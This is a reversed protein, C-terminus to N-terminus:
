EDLKVTIGKIDKCSRLDLAMIEVSLIFLLALLLYGQRKGRSNKFNESVWGNNMLCTQIDSYLTKVWSIFSENFRFHKLTGFMFDWELSDFAKSFDIFIITGEIKYLDVYDIIDQIQRLNFGIFRNKVYGTQDDNIIKPLLNKLRQTLVYSLIKLDVNLLSIPRYNHLNLYDGKKILLALISTRQLYTLCQEDNGKNLVDTLTYKFKNWFVRYFELWDM